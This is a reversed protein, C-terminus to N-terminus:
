FDNSVVTRVVTRVVFTTLVEITHHDIVNSIYEHEKTKILKIERAFAKVKGEQLFLVLSHFV